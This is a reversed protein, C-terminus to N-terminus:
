IENYIIHYLYNSFAKIGYYKENMQTWREETGERKKPKKRVCEKETKWERKRHMLVPWQDTTKLEKEETLVGNNGM